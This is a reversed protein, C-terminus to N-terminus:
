ESNATLLMWASPPLSGIGVFSTITAGNMLWCGVTGSSGHYMLIDSKRDGDFDGTQAITWGPAMTAVGAASGIGGSANMFWIAVGSGTNTLLIDSITDGNFDGTGAISWGAPLSGVGVASKVSGNSNMLWAAIGGSTNNLWLIDWVGDADFDGTGAVAWDNPLSGVGLASGLGGTSDMFWLAVATGGGRFLVDGIGDGNFDGTGVITWATTPNGLGNASTITTGNMLWEAISGDTARFLIDSKAEGNIDRQGIISWVNTTSGIGAVSQVTASDGMLWMAIGGGTNQFLIDSFCDRNFDHTATPSAVFIWAAGVQLNDQYGGVVATDCSLAVSWGQQAGSLGGTGVLKNGQQTWVGGSRTFVWAAGANSNDANGGVIATNGGGSLAVSRGQQANGVSGTGVLKTGQQTWVGGSRSFVWAAGANSNDTYGGVIATNGDTSLAVSSGQNAAGAAGSGVLKSGQQSWVGGSRSFVWAAGILNHDAYGGVIATNGDDSLAVSFGQFITGVGGTGVLKAGQQTWVGGSRTYVWAAGTNSNDGYGGVIATNGDGSLAVSIGQQANGVAGSGVLKAGQQTWVGGSRTFVWAAGVGGTDAWGGVIATNGDASLGVTQGQHAAGGVVGSGVLKGQQSWASGSRTFVWATGIGTDNPGGVIATHGNASVAVAYGQQASGIAGTGILKSGQQAFDALAPQASWLLAAALAGSPLTVRLFMTCARAIRAAVPQMDGEM